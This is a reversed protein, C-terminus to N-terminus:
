VQELFVARHLICKCRIVVAFLTRPFMQPVIAHIDIRIVTCDHLPHFLNLLHDPFSNSQRGSDFSLYKLFASAATLAAPNSSMRCILLSYNAIVFLVTLTYKLGIGLSPFVRRHHSAFFLMAPICSCDPPRSSNPLFFFVM